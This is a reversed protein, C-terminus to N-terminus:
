ETNREITQYLNSFKAQPDGAPRSQQRRRRTEVPPPKSRLKQEKNVRDLLGPFADTWVGGGLLSGVAIAKSIPDLDDYIVGHTNMGPNYMTFVDGEQRTVQVMGLTQLWAATNSAPAFIMEVLKENVMDMVDM